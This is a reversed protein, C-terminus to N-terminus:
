LLLDMKLSPWAEQQRGVYFFHFFSAHGKGAKGAKRALAM